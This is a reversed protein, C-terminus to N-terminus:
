KCAQCKLLKLVSFKYTQNRGQEQSERLQTQLLHHKKQDDEDQKLPLSVPQAAQPQLMQTTPHFTRSGHLLLIVLLNYACLSLSILLNQQTVWEPCSFRPLETRMSCLVQAALM